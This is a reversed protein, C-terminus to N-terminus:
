SRTAVVRLYQNRVLTHHEPDPAVNAGAWLAELEAAFAVQGAPNLKNFAIQTPGFYQRFFGVVGAANAPLDFLIPVIETRIESFFPGLREHVVRRDGWLVPAPIGPPPPAHQAAVRFMAGSFSEANWNAMALLGGPRLVRACEAAVLDPRPAFMAGFMTVVADYSGDPYPLQEADGEDFTVALHEGAARARAQDLLNTAIDVGTVKHGTHALPIAVNGTGCALDLVRSGPALALSGAFQEAGHSITRAIQGFDGAMWATRMSSKIQDMSPGSTTTM